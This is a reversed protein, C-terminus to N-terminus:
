LNEKRRKEEVSKQLEELKQVYVSTSGGNRFDDPPLNEVLSEDFETKEKQRKIQARLKRENKEDDTVQRGKSSAALKALSSPQDTKSESNKERDWIAKFYSVPIDQLESLLGVNRTVLGRILTHNDQFTEGNYVVTLDSKKIENAGEALAYRQAEANLRSIFEPIGGTLRFITEYEGSELERNIPMVSFSFIEQTLSRFEEDDASLFPLLSITGGVTFRRTDQSFKRLKEIALPNGVLCVPVGFNTLTLLFLSFVGTDNGLSKLQIEEIVLIGTFRNALLMSVRRILRDVLQKSHQKAYNTGLLGDLANLVNQLFGTVGGTTCNRRPIYNSDMVEM